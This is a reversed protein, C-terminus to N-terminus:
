AFVEDVTKEWVVPAGYDDGNLLATVIAPTLKNIILCCVFAESACHDEAWQIASDRDTFWKTLDGTMDTRAFFFSTM